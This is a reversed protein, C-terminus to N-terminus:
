IAIRKGAKRNVGGQKEGITIHSSRGGLDNGGAREERWWV